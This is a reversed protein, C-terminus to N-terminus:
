QRRWSRRKQGEKIYIERAATAAAATQAAVAAAAVFATETAMDSDNTPQNNHAGAVTETEVATARGWWQWQQSDVDHAITAITVVTEKCLLHRCHHCRRMLDKEPTINL